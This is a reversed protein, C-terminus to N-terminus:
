VVMYETYGSRVVVVSYQVIVLTEVMSM